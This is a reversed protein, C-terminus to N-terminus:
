AQVEQDEPHEQAELEGVAAFLVTVKRLFETFSQGPRWIPGAQGLPVDPEKAYKQWVALQEAVGDQAESDLPEAPAIEIDLRRNNWRRFRPDDLLSFGDTSNPESSQEPPPEPPYYEGM